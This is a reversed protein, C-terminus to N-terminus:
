IRKVGVGYSLSYEEESLRRCWKVTAPHDKPFSKYPPNEYRFQIINGPRFSHESEFYMGNESINGIQAYVYYDATEDSVM